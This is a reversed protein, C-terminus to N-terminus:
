RWNNWGSSNILPLSSAALLQAYCCFFQLTYVQQCLCISTTVVGNALLHDVTDNVANTADSTLDVRM